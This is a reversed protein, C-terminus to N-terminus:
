PSASLRLNYRIVGLEKRAAVAGGKEEAAQHSVVKKIKM